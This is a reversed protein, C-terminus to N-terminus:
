SNKIMYVFMSIWLSILFITLFVKSMMKHEALYFDKCIDYILLISGINITMFLLLKM